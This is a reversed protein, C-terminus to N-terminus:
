TIKVGRFELWTQVAQALIRVDDASVHNLRYYDQANGREQLRDILDHCATLVSEQSIM